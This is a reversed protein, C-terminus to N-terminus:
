SKTENSLDLILRDLATTVKYAESPRNIPRLSDKQLQDFKLYQNTIWSILHRLMQPRDPQSEQGKADMLDLKYEDEFIQDQDIRILQKVMTRETKWGNCLRNLQKLSKQIGGIEIELLNIRDTLDQTQEQGFGAIQDLSMNSGDDTLFQIPQVPQVAQRIGEAIALQDPNEAVKKTSDVLDKPKKKKLAANKARLRQNKRKESDRKARRLAKEKENLRVRNRIWKQLKGM